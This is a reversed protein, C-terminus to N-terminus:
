LPTPTPNYIQALWKFPSKLIERINLKINQHFTIIIVQAEDVCVINHGSFDVESLVNRIQWPTITHTIYKLSQLVPTTTGM